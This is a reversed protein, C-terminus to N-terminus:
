SVDQEESEIMADIKADQAMDYCEDYWAAYCDECVLRHEGDWRSHEDENSVTLSQIFDETSM